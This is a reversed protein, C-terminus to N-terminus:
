PQGTGYPHTAAGVPVPSSVKRLSRDLTKRLATQQRPGLPNAGRAIDILTIGSLRDHMGDQPTQGAVVPLAALAATGAFILGRVMVPGFGPARHDSASITRLGLMGTGFSMGTLGRWLSMWIWAAIFAVPVVIYIVESVQLIVAAIALPLAPSLLAALDLLYSCCRVGRGAAVIQSSTTLTPQPPSIQQAAPLSSTSRASHTPRNTVAQGCANCFPANARLPSGCHTCTTEVGTVV